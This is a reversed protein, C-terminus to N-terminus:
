FDTASSGIGTWRVEKVTLTDLVEDDEYTDQIEEGNVDENFVVEYSYDGYDMYYLTEGDAMFGNIMFGMATLESGKMGVYKALDAETPKNEMLDDVRTIPVDAVVERLKADHNDDYPIQEIQAYMGEPLEAVVRYAEDGSQLVGVFREEGISYGMTETNLDLADGLTKVQSIDITQSAAGGSGSGDASGGAAGCGVLVLALMAASLLAAFKKM